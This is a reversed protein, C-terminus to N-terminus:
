LMINVSEPQGSVSLGVATRSGQHWTHQYGGVSEGELSGVPAGVRLGVTNVVDSGVVAIHSPTTM